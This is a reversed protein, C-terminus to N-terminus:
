IGGTEEEGIIIPNVAAIPLRKRNFDYLLCVRKLTKM